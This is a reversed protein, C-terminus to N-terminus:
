YGKTYLTLHNNVSAVGPVGKAVEAAQEIQPGDSVSGSLTVVGGRAKVFVNSVNFNPAKSLAKRVDRALKKDAPTAKDSSSAMPMANSAQAYVNSTLMVCGVVVLLNVVNCRKM